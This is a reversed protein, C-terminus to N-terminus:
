LELLIQQERDAGTQADFRNTAIADVEDIFIIALSNKCVFCTVCLAGDRDLTIKFLNLLQPARYKCRPSSSVTCIRLTSYSLRRSSEMSKHLRRNFSIM